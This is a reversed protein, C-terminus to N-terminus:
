VLLSYLLTTNPLLPHSAGPTRKLFMTATTLDQQRSGDAALVVLPGESPLYVAKGGATRESLPTHMIKMRWLM